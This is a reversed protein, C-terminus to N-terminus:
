KVFGHQKAAAMVSERLSMTQSGEQLNETNQLGFKLQPKAENKSARESAKEALKTAIRGKGSNSALTYMAELYERPSINDSPPFQDMLKIMRQEYKQADPNDRFFETSARTAEQEIQKQTQVRLEAQTEERTKNLLKEITPGIKDALFSWEEGLAEKMEQTVSKVASAESKGTVVQLGADKALAALVSQRTSPDSLLTILAYQEKSVNFKTDVEDTESSQNEETNNENQQNESTQADSNSTQQASQTTSSQTENQTEQNTTNNEEAM